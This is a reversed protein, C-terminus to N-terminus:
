VYFTNGIGIILSSVKGTHSTHHYILKTTFYWRIDVLQLSQRSYPTLRSIDHSRNHPSLSGHCDIRM